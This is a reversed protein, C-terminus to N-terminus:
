KKSEGCEHENSPPREGEFFSMPQIEFSKPWANPNSVLLFRSPLGTSHSVRWTHSLVFWGKVEKVELQHGYNILVWSSRKYVGQGCLSTLAHSIDGLARRLGPWHGCSDVVDYTFTFLCPM